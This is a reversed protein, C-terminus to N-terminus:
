VHERRGPLGDLVGGNGLPSGDGDQAEPRDAVHGRPDGLMVPRPNEGDVQHGLPQLAGAVPPDLDDIERAVFIVQGIEHTVLGITTPGVGHDICHSHLRM